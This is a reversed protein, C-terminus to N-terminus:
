GPFLLELTGDAAFICRANHGCMPVVIAEHQAGLVDGVYRAYALGRALRTPGQAMAACSSDFGALPLIDLQGLLYTLPRATVHARLDEESLRASYDVRGRLGYPWNDFTTCNNADGFEGFPPPPTAPLPPTYGPPAAAVDSPLAAISPRRSDLYAYSSPNAVIYRVPVGLSEHVQNTMQYRSVFQGGASHGAFVITALNPFVVKDSLIRLITDAADFSTKEGGSSPAGGATWRGPGSCQWNVEDADLEDGCAEGNSSAFRPAVIVTNELAGALFAGALAHRFYNDADRSAGHVMVLARTVNPNREALAHTRYVLIRAPGPGLTVWERCEPVASASCDAASAEDRPILSLVCLVLYPLWRHTM